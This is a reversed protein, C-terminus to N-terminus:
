PLGPAGLQPAQLQFFHKLAVRDSHQDSRLCYHDVVLSRGEGLDVAMWSQPQNETTSWCTAAHVHQVFHCLETSVTSVSGVSSLSSVSSM